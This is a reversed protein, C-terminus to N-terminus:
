NQNNFGYKEILMGLKRYSELQNYNEQTRIDRKGTPYKWMGNNQQQKIIKLVTPLEYLHEIPEVVQELLDKKVFYLLAKNKTLLLDNIPNIKLSDSWIKGNTM